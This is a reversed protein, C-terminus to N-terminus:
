RLYASAITKLIDTSTGSPFQALISEPTSAVNIRKYVAVYDKLEKTMASSDNLLHNAIMSLAFSYMTLNDPNTKTISLAKRYVADEAKAHGKLRYVQSLNWLILNWPHGGLADDRLAENFKVNGFLAGAMKESLKHEKKFLLLMVNTYHFLSFVEVRPTSLTINLFKEFALDSEPNLDVSKLLCSIAEEPKGAEVMLMSRYQWQRQLDQPKVFEDMAAESTNLAEEFLEPKQHILNILAELKVGNVKGLLESSTEIETDEYTGIMNFVDKADQLVSILQTAKEVVEEFRFQGLLCNLERIKYQFYYDIHEWSSCISGIDAKCLELYENCKSVNGLHDYMTLVYFNTDFTWFSLEQGLNTYKGGSLEYLPKLIYAKYNEAFQIGAEFLRKSNFQRIQLSISSFISKQENYSLKSIREVLKNKLRTVGSLKSLACIQFLMEEYRGEIFLRNIYGVTANDFVPFIYADLFLEAIEAQEEKTFKSKLTDRYQKKQTFYTNCILDALMLRKEKRASALCITHSVGSVQNRGMAIILKEELRRIYEKEPLIDIIAGQTAQKMEVNVRRAVLINLNIKDDPHNVALQQLLKVIGESIINLYTIDGNVVQIRETNEFIVFKGGIIKMNRLLTFYEEKLYSETAHIHEPISDLFKQNIAPSPCLLGGVLSPATGNKRNHSSQDEFDGSEDIYLDYNIISM